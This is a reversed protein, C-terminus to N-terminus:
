DKAPTKTEFHKVIKEIDRTYNTGFNKNIEKITDLYSKMCHYCGIQKDVSIASHMAKENDYACTQLELVLNDLCADVEEKSYYDKQRINEMSGEILEKHKLKGM